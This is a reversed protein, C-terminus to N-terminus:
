LLFQFFRQTLLLFQILDFRTEHRHGRVLEACRQAGYKGRSGQDAPILLLVLLRLAIFVHLAYLVGHFM